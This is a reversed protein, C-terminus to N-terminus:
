RGNGCVYFAPLGGIGSSGPPWPSTVRTPGARPASVCHGSHGPAATVCCWLSLPELGHFHITECGSPWLGTLTDGEGSAGSSIDEQRERGCTLATRRLPWPDDEGHRWTMKRRGTYTETDLNGREIFVSAMVVETVVRSGLLTVNVPVPTLVPAYRKPVCNLGHCNAEQGVNIVNERGLGM